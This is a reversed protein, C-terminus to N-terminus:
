YTWCWPRRKLNSNMLIEDLPASLPWMHEVYYYGTKWGGQGWCSRPDWFDKGQFKTDKYTGWRIENFFDKGELALEVRTEYRIAELVKAPDTETVAPMGARTRVENLLPLAEGVRDAGVLAEAWMLQIETFRILPWDTGDFVRDLTSGDTVIGKNWLYVMNSAFEPWLDSNDEGDQRKFRPWRLQFDIATLCIDNIFKYKKYPTVVM